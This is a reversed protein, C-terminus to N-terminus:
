RSRKSGTRCIPKPIPSLDGRPSDDEPLDVDFVRRRPLDTGSEAGQAAANMRETERILDRAIIGWSPTIGM